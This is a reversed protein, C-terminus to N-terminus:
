TTLDFLNMWAPQPQPFLHNGVPLWRPVPRHTSPCHAVREEVARLLFPFEGALQRELALWSREGYHWARQIFEAAHHEALQLRWRCFGAAKEM